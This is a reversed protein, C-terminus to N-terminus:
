TAISYIYLKSLGKELPDMACTCIGYRYLKKEAYQYYIKIYIRIVTSMHKHHSVYM